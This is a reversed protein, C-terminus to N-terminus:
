LEALSLEKINDVVCRVVDKYLEINNDIELVEEKSYYECVGLMDLLSEFNCTALKKYNTKNLKFGLSRNLLKEFSTRDIIALENLNNVIYTIRFKLKSNIYNEDVKEVDIIYNVVADAIARYIVNRKVSDNNAYITDVLKQIKPNNIKM